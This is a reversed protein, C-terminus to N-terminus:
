ANAWKQYRLLEVLLEKVANKSSQLQEIYEENYKRTQRDYESNDGHINFVRAYSPKEMLKLLRKSYFAGMELSEVFEILEKVEDEYKYALEHNNELDDLFLQRIYIPHFQPKLIAPDKYFRFMKLKTIEIKRTPNHQDNLHCNPCLPLLNNLDNNTHDEDIHHLHPRDNGCIACRHDYENLVSDKIKKPIAKRTM